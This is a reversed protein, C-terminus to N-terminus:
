HILEAYGFTGYEKEVRKCTQICQHCLHATALPHNVARVHIELLSIKCENCEVTIQPLTFSLTHDMIHNYHFLSSYYVRTAEHREETMEDGSKLM